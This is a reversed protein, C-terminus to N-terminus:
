RPPRRAGCGWRTSARAMPFARWKSDVMFFCQSKHQKSKDMTALVTLKDALKGNTIFCKSGNLIYYDGEIKATTSIGAVDSGAGPETVAYASLQGESCLGTFWWDKQSETAGYYVPESALINVLPTITIAMCGRALEEAVLCIDQYNFVVGTYKEPAVMCNIGLDQM